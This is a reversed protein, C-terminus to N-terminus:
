CCCLGMGQEQVHAENKPLFGSFCTFTTIHKYEIWMESATRLTSHSENELVLNLSSKCGLTFCWMTINRHWDVKLECGTHQELGVRGM